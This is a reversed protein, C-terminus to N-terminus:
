ACSCASSSRRRRARAFLGLENTATTAHRGPDVRHRRVRDAHDAPRPAPFGDLTLVRGAPGAGTSCSREPTSRPATASTAHARPRLRLRPHRHHRDRPEGLRRQRDGAADPRADQDPPLAGRGRQAARRAHQLEPVGWSENFPVWVVICPHSYDREIAETWERMLASSRRARSATPPRCRRGSWCASGTPGTCTARTRSRRTSACATSAWRRPWSSTARLARTPPRADAAHRALLGPRAGPAAHVAPREAHLTRAARRGLAARHVLQVRRDGRRRAAARDRADLLTPREPGVAARQPLRRHGPRVPEIRRHVEGDIM